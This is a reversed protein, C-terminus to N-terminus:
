PRVGVRVDPLDQEDLLALREGQLEVTLLVLAPVDLAAARPELEAVRALLREVLLDDRGARAKAEPGPRHVPDGRDLVRRDELDRRRMKVVDDPELVPVSAFAGAVGSR